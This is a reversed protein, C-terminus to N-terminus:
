EPRADAVAEMAMREANRGAQWCASVFLSAFEECQSLSMRYGPHFFNSGVIVTDYDATVALLAGDFTSLKGIEQVFEDAM